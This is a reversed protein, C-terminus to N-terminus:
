KAIPQIVSSDLNIGPLAVSNKESCWTTDLIAKPGVLGGRWQAHLSRPMAIYWWKRM